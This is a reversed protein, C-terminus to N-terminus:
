GHEVFCESFVAAWDRDNDYTFMEGDRNFALDYANRLGGCILTWEKGDPDTRYVCGAPALNNAWTYNPPWYQQPLLEDEQYNKHPSNPLIGSVVKTENGNILYIQNDPGLVVGHSGHEGTSDPRFNGELRKLLKVEDFQDDGKTSRLRYLGTGEPGQGDVYLSDFAYLLGMASGVPVKLQEVREVGGNPALTMRLLGGIKPRDSADKSVIDQPSIILRNKDDITLCIWSGENTPATRLLEAKFGPLVTLNTAPMAPRAEGVPASAHAPLLVALAAAAVAFSQLLRIMIVGRKLQFNTAATDVSRSLSCASIRKM